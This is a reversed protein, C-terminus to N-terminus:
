CIAKNKRMEQNRTDSKGTVCKTIGANGRNLIEPDQELRLVFVFGPLYVSTDEERKFM